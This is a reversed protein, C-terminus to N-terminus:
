NDGRKRAVKRVLRCFFIDTIHQHILDACFFYYLQKLDINTTLENTGKYHNRENQNLLISANGIHVIQNKHFIIERLHKLKTLHSLDFIQSNSSIDIVELQSFNALQEINKLKYCYVLEIEKLHNFVLNKYFEELNGATVYLYELNKLPEIENLDKSFAGAISLFRVNLLSGIPNLNKLGQHRVIFHNIKIIHLLRDETVRFNDLRERIRRKFIKFYIDYPSGLILQKNLLKFQNLDDIVFAFNVLINKKWNHHLKRWWDELNMHITKYNM